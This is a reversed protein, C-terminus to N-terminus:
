PKWEAAGLVQSLPHEHEAILQLISDTSLGQTLHQYHVPYQFDSDMYAKAGIGALYRFDTGVNRELRTQLRQTKSPGATPEEDFVLPTTIGLLTALQYMLVKNLYVLPVPEQTLVHLLNVVGELRHHFKFRKVMLSKEIRQCIGGDSTIIIDALRPGTQQFPLTVWANQIKVRHEFDRRSFDTANSIVCVDASAVKNWFGIWPLFVSQHSAVKKPAPKLGHM